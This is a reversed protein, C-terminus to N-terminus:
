IVAPSFSPVQSCSKCSGEARKLGTATREGMHSSHKAAKKAESGLEQLPKRSAVRPTAQGESETAEFNVLSSNQPPSEFELPNTDSPLLRPGLPGLLAQQQFVPWLGPTTTISHSKQVWLVPSPSLQKGHARWARLWGLKQLPVFFNPPSVCSIHVSPQVQSSRQGVAFEPWFTKYSQRCPLVWKALLGLIGQLAVEWERCLMRDM